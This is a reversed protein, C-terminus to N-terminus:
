KKSEYVGRAEQYTMGADLLDNFFKQRASAQIPSEPKINRALFHTRKNEEVIQEELETLQLGYVDKAKGYKKQLERHKSLESETQELKENLAKLKKNIRYLAKKDGSRLAEGKLEQQDAIRQKYGESMVERAQVDAAIKRVAASAEFRTFTRDESAIERSIHNNGYKHRWLKHAEAYEEKTLQRDLGYGKDRWQQRYKLYAAYSKNIQHRINKDSAM